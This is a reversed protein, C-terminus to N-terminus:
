QPFLSFSHFRTKINLSSVGEEPLCSQVILPSPFSQASTSSFLVMAGLPGWSIIIVFSRPAMSSARSYNLCGRCLLCPRLQYYLISPIQVLSIVRTTHHTRFLVPSLRSPPSSAPHVPWPPFDLPIITKLVCLLHSLLGAQPLPRPSTYISAPLPSLIFHGSPSM